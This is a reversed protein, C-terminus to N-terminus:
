HKRLPVFVRDTCGCRLIRGNPDTPDSALKIRRDPCNTDGCKLQFVDGHDHVMKAIRDLQRKDDPTWVARIRTLTVVPSEDALPM